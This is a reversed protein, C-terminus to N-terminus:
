ASNGSRRLTTEEEAEAKAYAREWFSLNRRARQIFSSHRVFAVIADSVLRGPQRMPRRFQILLVVRMEETDNWVEHFWTDDIIVPTGVEWHVMRDGVQMRCAHADKPVVLPIHITMIAKSVGRHRAIHTGPAIISFMASVLGPVRQLTSATHPCRRLNEIIPYGYGYFFFSRWDDSDGAIREHGPAFDRFAPIAHSYRCVALMEATIEPTETAIDGIWPFLAPDYTPTDGVMSYRALWRNIRHRLKKARRIFGSQGRQIGPPTIYDPSTLVQMSIRRQGCNASAPSAADLNGRAPASLRSHRQVSICGNCDMM